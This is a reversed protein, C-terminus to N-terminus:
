GEPVPLLLATGSDLGVALTTGDTSFAMDNLTPYSEADGIVEGDALSYFEVSSKANFQVAAVTGDQTVAFPTARNGVPVDVARVGTAPDFGLLHQDGLDDETHIWVLGGGFELSWTLDPLTEEIVLEGSEVSWVLFTEEATVVALHAGDPTLAREVVQDPSEFEGVPDGTTMDFLTIVDNREELALGVDVFYGDVDDALDTDVLVDGTDVNVVRVDNSGVEVTAIMVLNGDADFQPRSVRVRRDILEPVEATLDWVTLTGGDHTMALRDGSPSFLVADGSSSSVTPASVAATAVLDGSTADVVVIEQRARLLAVLVDGGVELDSIFGNFEPETFPVPEIAVASGDIPLRMIESSDVVILEDGARVLRDPEFDLADYLAATSSGDATGFTYVSGDLVAFVTTGDASLELAVDSSGEDLVLESYLVGGTEVDVGAVLEEDAMVLTSGTEDLLFDYISRDPLEEVAGVLDGTAVDHVAVIDTSLIRPLRSTSALRTGDGSFVLGNAWDDHVGDLRLRRTRTTADWIEISGSELGFAFSAGTPDFAVSPAADDGLDITSVDMSPVDIMWIHHYGAGVILSGDPSVALDLMSGLGVRTGFASESAVVGPEFAGGGGATAGGGDLEDAAEDGTEEETAAADDPDTSEDGSEAASVSDDSSDGPSPQTTDVAPEDGFSDADGDGSSGGCSIGVLALASVLLQLRRSM